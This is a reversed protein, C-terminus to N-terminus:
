MFPPKNVDSGALEVTAGNGPMGMGGPVGNVIPTSDNLAAPLDAIFVTTTTQGYVFIFTGFTKKYFM